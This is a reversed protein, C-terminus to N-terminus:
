IFNLPNVANTRSGNWRGKHIEFHLHQGTSNGTSGMLGLAQGQSVTAGVSLRRSGTRMHAYVTEYTQGNINHVIMICEGYSAHRWSRSVKGAAAAKITIVGGSAMDIGAHSPRGPGRYGSSIRGPAPRIFGGSSKPVSGTSGSGGSSGGTSKPTPKSPEEYEITPLELERSLTLSMTHLGGADWKHSDSSVYFAGKIGTMTEDVIVTTASTIDIDGMANISFEQAPKSLEKLLADALPKLAKVTTVDSDHEYHQMVGYSKSKVSSVEVTVPKDEDGGTLKVKTKVDEISEKFSADIVNKNNEIVLRKVQKSVEILELLGKNNRVRYRKGTAKQTTTLATIVIDYLTKGRIIHRPIVYKTDAIAGTKIGYKKCLEVLIQSAKRNVFRVTDSSRTLYTNYDHATLSQDGNISIEHEFIAGRFLERTDKLVRIESGNRFTFAKARGSRTNNLNVSCSRSAQATDGSIEVDKIYGILDQVKGNHYYVVRLTM